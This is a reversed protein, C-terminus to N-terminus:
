FQFYIFTQHGYVGLSLLLFLTFCCFAIDTKVRDNFWRLHPDTFSEIIFVYACVLLSLIISFPRFFELDFFNMFAKDATFIKSLILWAKGVSEARFFIWALSVASFTILWSVMSIYVSAVYIQLNYSDTHGSSIFPEYKNKKRVQMANTYWGKLNKLLGDFSLQIFYYAAHILGWILFTWNAGHWFGSLAFVIFINVYRRWWSVRSGGLPIYVYDRFWTSLSIHWRTWFEQINKSFYPRRFNIMLDFGMCRAAGLAMDTYGSFDCYIQITFAIVGAILQLGHYNEPHTFIPNAHSSLRDAVVVKKFLGWMMLRLGVLLNEYSFTIRSHLQPLINQPREIPGAVLQPYFMVYLTYIGIHREATHRRSYVEITYSMAQFTHFSLGLPLVINLIPLNYLPIHHAGCFQDVNSAFFNYYKFFFLVGLNLAISIGLYLKRQRGSAKEIFLATTYDILIIGFLILIYMPMLAMYFICSAVLLLLWRLSAPTVYYLTTVILFFELFEFSNFLM